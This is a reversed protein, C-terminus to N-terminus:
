NDDISFTQKYRTYFSCQIYWLIDNCNIISQNWISLPIYILKVLLKLSICMLMIILSCQTSPSNGNGWFWKSKLYYIINVANVCWTTHSHHHQAMRQNFGGHVLNDNNLLPSNDVSHCYQFLAAGQMTSCYHLLPFYKPSFSHEILTFTFTPLISFEPTM